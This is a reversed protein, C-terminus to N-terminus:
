YKLIPIIDMSNAIGNTGHRRGVEVKIYGDEGWSDGWSNKVMFYSINEKIDFGTLLLSHNLTIDKYTVYDLIGSKYMRFRNDVAVMVAVPHKQVELM